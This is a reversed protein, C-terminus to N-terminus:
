YLRKYQSKILESYQQRAGQCENMKAEMRGKAELGRQDMVRGAWSRNWDLVLEQAKSCADNVSRILVDTEKAQRPNKFVLGQYYYEFNPVKEDVVFGGTTEVAVHVGPSLEVVVWAHDYTTMAKEPSMGATDSKPTGAVVKPSFNKTKLINAMDLSMDVCVFYDAMSYTHTSKYEAALRQLEAYRGDSRANALMAQVMEKRGGGSPKATVGTMETANGGPAAEKRDSMHVVGKADTWTYVEALGPWAAWLGCLVLLVTFGAACLFVRLPPLRM